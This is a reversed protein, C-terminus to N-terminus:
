GAAGVSAAGKFPKTYDFLDRWWTSVKNRYRINDQLDSVQRKLKDVEQSLDSPKVAAAQVEAVQAKLETQAETAAALSAEAQKVAATLKELEQQATVLQQRGEGLQSRLQAIYFGGAIIIVSAAAILFTLKTQQMELGGAVTM